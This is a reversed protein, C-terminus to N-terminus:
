HELRGGEDNGQGKPNSPTSAEEEESIAVLEEEETETEAHCQNDDQKENDNMAHKEQHGEAEEENSSDDNEEQERDDSEEGDTDADADDGPKEQKKRGRRKSLKAKFDKLMDDAQEFESSLVYLGGAICAVGPGPIPFAVLPVGITILAGGAAAAATKRAMAYVSNETKTTTAAAEDEDGGVGKNLPQGNKLNSTLAANLAEQQELDIKQPQSGVDELVTTTSVTETKRSRFWTSTAPTTAKSTEDGEDKATASPKRHRVFWTTASSTGEKATDDGENGVEVVENETPGSTKRSTARYREIWSKKTTSSGTNAGTDTGGENALDEGDDPQTQPTDSGANAKTAYWNGWRNPKTAAVSTSMEEEAKDDLKEENQSANTVSEEGDPQAQTDAARAKWRWRSTATMNNNNNSSGSATKSAASLSWKWGKKAINKKIKEEEEECAIRLEEPLIQKLEEPMIWTAEQTTRHYYYPRGSTEDVAIRWLTKPRKNETTTTTAAAQETSAEGGPSLQIDDGSATDNTQSTTISSQEQDDDSRTTEVEQRVYMEQSLRPLSSSSNFSDTCEDLSSCSLSSVVMSSKTAANMAEESGSASEPLSNMITTTPTSPPDVDIDDNNNNNNRELPSM